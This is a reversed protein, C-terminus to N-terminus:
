STIIKNYILFLTIFIILLCVIKMYSSRDNCSNKNIEEVPQKSFIVKKGSM